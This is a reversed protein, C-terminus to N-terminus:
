VTQEPPKATRFIFMTISAHHPLKQQPCPFQVTWSQVGESRPAAVEVEGWFLGATQPWPILGLRVCGAVNDREDRIEVHHGYLQCASSCRVGVKFKFPRGVIAPLPVDWIVIRCTHPVVRFHLAVSAEDHLAGCARHRPVRIKWDYSGIQNPVTLLIRTRQSPSEDVLPEVAQVVGEASLIELRRGLLQCGAPCDVHVQLDIDAGADVERPVRTILSLNTRHAQPDEKM